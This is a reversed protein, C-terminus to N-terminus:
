GCIMASEWDLRQIFQDRGLEEKFLYVAETYTNEELELDLKGCDKARALQSKKKPMTNTKKERRATQREIKLMKQLDAERRIRYIKVRKDYDGGHEPERAPLEDALCSWYGSTGPVNVVKGPLEDYAGVEIVVKEASIIVKLRSNTKEDEELGGEEM